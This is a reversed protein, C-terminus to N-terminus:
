AVSSAGEETLTWVRQSEEGGRGVDQERETKVEGRYGSSSLPPVMDRSTLVQCQSNM